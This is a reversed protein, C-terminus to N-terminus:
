VDTKLLCHLLCDVARQTYDSEGYLPVSLPETLTFGM